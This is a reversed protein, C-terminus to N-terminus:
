AGTEVPERLRTYIHALALMTLPLTVLLGVIFFLFGLANLLCSALTFLLLHAISGRTLKASASLSERIGASDLIAYWVMSYRTAVYLVLSVVVLAIVGYVGWLLLPVRASDFSHLTAAGSLYASGFVLAAGVLIVAAILLDILIGALFTRWVLQSPPALERYQAPLGRVLKLSVLFVGVELVFLAVSFALNLLSGLTSHALTKDVIASLIELGFLTLVIQFVLVNNTRFTSWAFRFSERISFTANM